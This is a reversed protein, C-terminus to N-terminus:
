SQRMHITYMCSPLKRVFNGEAEPSRMIMPSSHALEEDVDDELIGHSGFSKAAPVSHPNSPPQTNLTFDTSPQLVLTTDM